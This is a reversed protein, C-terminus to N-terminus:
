NPIGLQPHSCNLSGFPPPRKFAGVRKTIPLPNSSSKLRKQRWTAAPRLHSVCLGAAAALKNDATRCGNSPM